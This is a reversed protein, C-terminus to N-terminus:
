IVALPKYELIISAVFVRPKSADIVIKWVESAIEQAQEVTSAQMLHGLAMVFEFLRDPNKINRYDVLHEALSAYVRSLFNQQEVNLENSDILKKIGRLQNEAVIELNM